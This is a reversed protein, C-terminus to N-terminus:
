GQWPLLLFVFNQLHFISICHITKFRLPFKIYMIIKSSQDITLAGFYIHQYKQEQSLPLDEKHFLFHPLYKKPASCRQLRMIRPASLLPAVQHPRYVTLRTVARTVRLADDSKKYEKM